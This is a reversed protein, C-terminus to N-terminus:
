PKYYDKSSTSTMGKSLHCDIEPFTTCGDYIEEQTCQDDGQYDIYLESLKIYCRDPFANTSYYFKSKLTRTPYHGFLGQTKAM